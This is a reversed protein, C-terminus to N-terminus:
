YNDSPLDELIESRTDWADFMAEYITVYIEYLREYIKTRTSRPEYTQDITTTGTVARELDEYHDVAVGAVLAAGKAGFEAGVPVSVKAGLCDAIIQCWFASRTGGGSLVVHDTTTPMHEYCDRIALSVGEYVARALDASSHNATLGTFQARANPALFPNREGSSSLYPHYMVGNAGPPSECAMAEVTDLDSVDFLENAVWDLNPTGTMASISRTWREDGLAITFGSNQSGTRPEDLITQNLVTTGLITSSDGPHVVGSGFASAVVDLVGSAVPTGAPLGTREAASDTVHGIITTAPELSPLFTTAEPLGVLEAVGEDYAVSEVNLFPLTADSPDTSRVGTLRYKIWDKCSFYTDIREYAAPENEHIWKLLPLTSGAFPVCGCIDYLAEAVNSQNWADIYEKARGDNWLIANRVPKGNEDILWAGDGQGTVGVAIIESPSIEEVLQQLTSVVQTWTQEMNQESWKPNPTLTPSAVSKCTIEDGDLSFAASKISSTGADIGIIRQKM